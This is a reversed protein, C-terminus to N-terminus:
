KQPQRMGREDCIAVLNDNEARLAWWRWQGLSM